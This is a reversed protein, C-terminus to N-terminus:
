INIVAFSCLSLKNEQAVLKKTDKRCSIDVKTLWIVIIAENNVVSNWYAVRAELSLRSKIM